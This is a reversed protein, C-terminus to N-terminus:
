TQNVSFLPKSETDFGLVSAALLAQRAQEFQQQTQPTFIAQDPLAPYPPLLASAEKSPAQLRPM